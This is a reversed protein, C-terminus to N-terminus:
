DLSMCAIDDIFVPEATLSNELRLQGGGDIKAARMHWHPPIRLPSHGAFVRPLCEVKARYDIQGWFLDRWPSDEGRRILDFGFTDFPTWGADEFWIEAWYHYTPMAPFLPFGSTMRAPIGSARCLAVLLSASLNCDAIGHGLLWDLPAAVDIDAYRLIGITVVDHIHMWFRRVVRWPDTEGAALGAALALIRPTLRIYGEQGNLWLEREPATIQPAVAPVPSPRVTFEYEACVRLDGSSSVVVELRGPGRTQRLIRDSAPEILKVHLNSLAADEIPAPLRLRATDAQPVYAPNFWRALRLQFRRPKLLGAVPPAAPLAGRWDEGPFHHELVLRKSSQAMAERWFPDGCHLDARKAFNRLEIPDFLKEGDPTQAYPLGLTVWRQLVIQAASLFEASPAGPCAFQMGIAVLFDASEQASTLRFRSDLPM